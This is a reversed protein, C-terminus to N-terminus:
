KSGIPSAGIIFAGIASSVIPKNKQDAFVTWYNKTGRKLSIYPTDMVYENATGVNYRQPVIAIAGPHDDAPYNNILESESECIFAQLGNGFAYDLDRWRRKGDGYKFKNTNSEIGIEGAELIPNIRYWTDAENYRQQLRVRLEKM